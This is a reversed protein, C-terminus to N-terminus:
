QAPVQKNAQPQSTTAKRTVHINELWHNTGQVVVDASIEDGPALSQLASADKVKYGMTMADMFGPIDKHDVVVKSTATDTSVVKGTLAYRKIPQSERACASFLAIVLLLLIWSQTRLNFGRKGAPSGARLGCEIFRLNDRLGIAQLSVGTVVALCVLEMDVAFQIDRFRSKDM